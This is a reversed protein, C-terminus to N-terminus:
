AGLASTLTEDDLEIEDDLGLGGTDASAEPDNLEVESDDLVEPTDPTAELDTEFKDFYLDINKILYDYFLGKDEEDSLVDYADVIQNEVKKFAEFAVNRGTLNQGEVGFTEREDPEEEEIEPEEEGPDIDIFAPDVNDGEADVEIDIQEELEESSDKNLEVPRLTRDAAALIHARFSERQEINTTLKKYDDELTPIIKKLLDELVNIGTSREPSVEVDPTGVETILKRIHKRLMKEENLSQAVANKEETLIDKIGERIVKRLKLEEYFEHRDMQM